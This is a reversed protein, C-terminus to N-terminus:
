YRSPIAWPILARIVQRPLPVQSKARRRELLRMVSSFTPLRFGADVVRIIFTRPDPLPQRGAKARSWEQSLDDAMRQIILQATPRALKRRISRINSRIEELTM